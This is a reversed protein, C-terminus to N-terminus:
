DGDDLAFKLKAVGNELSVVRVTMSYEKNSGNPDSLTCDMTAGARSELDDPCDVVPALGIQKGMEESAKEEVSKESMPAHGCGALVTLALPVLVLTRRRPM